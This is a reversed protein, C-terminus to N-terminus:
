QTLGAKRIIPVWKDIESQVFEGFKAPVELSEPPLENGLELLRKRVSDERLAKRAAANLPEIVAAPTNRPAFLAIWGVAQFEPLGQEGSTPVDPLAPVRKESAVALPKLMGAHAQPVVEITQNCAYDVQGSIIANMAPGSGRFPVHQAKSGVIENLFLCTLHSQAGLGGSGFNLQDGKSKLYSVFERFDKAPFDKRAVVFMPTVALYMVPEFDHRPDYPLNSFMGLSAVNPGLSGVLLTYGNPEARAVRAAGVTGGAGPVNEVILQQGLTRAMQEAYIRAIVDTAGGAAFPVIMTIPRDPFAGASGLPAAVAIALGALFRVLRVLM